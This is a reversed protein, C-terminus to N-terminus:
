TSHSVKKGTAALRAPHVSGYAGEGLVEDWDVNYKDNLARGRLSRKRHYMVNQPQKTLNKRPNAMKARRIPSEPKDLVSDESDLDECRTDRTQEEFFILLAISAATITPFHWNEKGSSYSKAATSIFYGRPLRPFLQCSLTHFTSILAPRRKSLVRLYSTM